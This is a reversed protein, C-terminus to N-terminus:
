LLGKLNFTSTAPKATSWYADWSWGWDDETFCLLIPDGNRDSEFFYYDSGFSIALLTASLTWGRMGYKHVKGDVVTIGANM